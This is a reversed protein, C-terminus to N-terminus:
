IHALESHRWSHLRLIDDWSCPSGCVSAMEAAPPPRPVKEEAISLSFSTKFDTLEKNQAAMANDAINRCADAEGVLCELGIAGQTDVFRVVM